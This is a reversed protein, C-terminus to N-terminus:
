RKVFTSFDEFHMDRAKILMGVVNEPSNSRVIDDASHSLREIAVRSGFVIRLPEGLMRSWLSRSFLTGSDTRILEGKEESLIAPIVDNVLNLIVWKINTEKAGVQSAIDHIRFGSVLEEPSITLRHNIMAIKVQRVAEQVIDIFSREEFSDGKQLFHFVKFEKLAEVAMDVTGYGTLVIAKTGENLSNLLHMTQKGEAISHDESFSLDITVVHFFERHLIHITEEITSATRVDYGLNRLTDGIVDERWIEEDDSVLVKITM